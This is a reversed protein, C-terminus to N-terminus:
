CCAKKTAGNLKQINDLKDFLKCALWYLLPAIVFGAIVDVIYHAKIYVTALALVIFIVFLIYFIRRNYKFFVFLMILSVSIHSSPFAGTRKEGYYQIITMIKYFIFGKPVKDCTFYFQPGEVPLVIFILYHVFFSFLIIFSIKESIRKDFKLYFYIVTFTITLYFSFYGFAMLESFFRQDFVKSFALSPQCGFLFQDADAFYKDLNVFICDNLYSTEPYWFVILSVPFLYRIIKIINNNSKTAWWVLLGTIILFIGRFALRELASNIHNFFFLVYLSTLLIYCIVIIETPTLINIYKHKM